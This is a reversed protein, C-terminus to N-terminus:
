GDGSRSALAVLRVDVTIPMSAGLRQVERRELVRLLKPQLALPLDGIEDLLM